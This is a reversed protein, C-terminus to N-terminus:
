IKDQSQTVIWYRCLARDVSLWALRAWERYAQQYDAFPGYQEMQGVFQQFTPDNFEGGIVWYKKPANQEHIYFRTQAQDVTQWALKKWEALAEAYTAFPGIKKEISGSVPRSFDMDEYEGGIVWFEGTM